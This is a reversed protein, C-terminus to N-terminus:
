RNQVESRVYPRAHEEEAVAIGVCLDKRDFGIRARDLEQTGVDAVEGGHGDPVSGDRPVGALDVEVRRV